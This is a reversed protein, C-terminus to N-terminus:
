SRILCSQSVDKVGICQFITNSDQFCGQIYVRMGSSLSLRHDYLYILAERFEVGEADVLLRTTKDPRMTSILNRIIYFVM